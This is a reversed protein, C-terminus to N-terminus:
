TRRKPNEFGKKSVVKKVVNVCEGHMWSVSVLDESWEVNAILERRSLATDLKWESRAEGIEKADRNGSMYWCWEYDAYDQNFKREPTKIVKDLPDAIAFSANFIAKTNAFDVGENMIDSYLLEFADTPNKYRM